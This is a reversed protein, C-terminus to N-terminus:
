DFLIREKELSEQCERIKKDQSQFIKALQKLNNKHQNKQTEIFTTDVDVRNGSQAQIKGLLKTMFSDLYLLFQETDAFAQEICKGKEIQLQQMRQEYEVLEYM